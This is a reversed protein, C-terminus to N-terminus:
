GLGLALLPDDPIKVSDMKCNLEEEAWEGKDRKVNNEADTSLLWREYLYRVWLGSLELFIMYYSTIFAGM